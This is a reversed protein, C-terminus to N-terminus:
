PSGEGRSCVSMEDGKEHGIHQVSSRGCNIVERKVGQDLKHLDM